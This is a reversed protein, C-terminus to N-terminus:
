KQIAIKFIRFSQTKVLDNETVLINEPKIDRHVIGCKHTAALADAIQIAIKLARSRDISKERLLERLTKGEVYEMALFYRKAEEGFEYIHAVNPHSIASAARAEQRFRRVGEANAGLSAPLIKLAVLLKLRNDEALYVAGMGGRGM